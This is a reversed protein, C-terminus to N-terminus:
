LVDLDNAASLIEMRRGEGVQAWLLDELADTNHATAYFAQMAGARGPLQRPLHRVRPSSHADAPAASATHSPSEARHRALSHPIVPRGPDPEPGYKATLASLLLDEQGRWSELLQPVRAVRDPAHREYIRILRHRFEEDAPSRSGGILPTAPPPPPPPPSPADAWLWDLYNPRSGLVRAALAPTALYQARLCKPTAGGADVDNSTAGGAAPPPPGMEVDRLARQLDALRGEFRKCLVAIDTRRPIGAFARRLEREVMSLPADKPRTTVAADPNPAMPAPEPGYRGVLMGIIECAAGAYKDALIPAKSLQKPEHRAFIREIRSVLSLPPPELGHQLILRDFLDEENAAHDRLLTQVTPLRQPDYHALFAELRLAFTRPVCPPPRAYKITQDAAPPGDAITRSSQSAELSAPVVAGEAEPVAVAPAFHEALRAALRRFDAALHFPAVSMTCLVVRREDGAVAGDDRPDDSVEILEVMVDSRALEQRTAELPKTLPWPLQVTVICGALGAVRPEVRWVDAAALVLDRALGECHRRVTTCDSFDLTQAVTPAFAPRSRLAHLSARRLEAHTTGQRAASRSVAVICAGHPCCTFADIRAFLYTWQAPARPWPLVNGAAYSADLFLAPRVGNQSMALSDRLADVLTPSGSAGTRNVHEMAIMRVGQVFAGFYTNSSVQRALDNATTTIEALTMPEAHTLCHLDIIMAGAREAVNRCGRIAVSDGAAGLGHHGFRLVIVADGPLLQPRIEDHLLADLATSASPFLAAAAVDVKESTNRGEADGVVTVPLDHGLLTLGKRLAVAEFRPVAVTEFWVPDEAAAVSYYRFRDLTFEATLGWAHRIFWGSSLLTPFHQRRMDAGFGNGTVRGAVIAVEALLNQRPEVRDHFNAATAHVALFARADASMNDGDGIKQRLAAIMSRSPNLSRRHLLMEFKTVAPRPAELLDVQLVKRSWAMTAWAAYQVIRASRNPFRIVEGSDGNGEQAGSTLM